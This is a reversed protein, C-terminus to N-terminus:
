KLLLCKRSLWYNDANMRIFYTGSPLFRANWRISHFGAPQVANLLRVVEQGVENYISITVNTKHPISYQIRTEPNFPNPYNALLYCNSPKISLVDSNEVDLTFDSMFFGELVEGFRPSTGNNEIKINALIGYDNTVWYYKILNYIPLKALPLIATTINHEFVRLCPLEGLACKLTGWADVEYYSSDVIPVEGLFTAKKLSRVTVWSDGHSVPFSFRPDADTLVTSDIITEGVVTIQGLETLVEQDVEIYYYDATDSISRTVNYVLNASPFRESYPANVSEVVQWTEITDSKFESFDWYEDGGKNGWNISPNKLKMMRFNTAMKSPLDKDALTIQSFSNANLLLHFFIIGIVLLNKIEKM